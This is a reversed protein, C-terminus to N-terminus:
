PREPTRKPTGSAYHDHEDSMDAIGIDVAEVSLDDAPDAGAPIPEIRVRAGEPLQAGPDAVVKGNRIHGFYVM